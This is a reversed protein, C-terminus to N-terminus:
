TTRILGPKRHACKSVLQNCKSCVLGLATYIPVGNEFVLVRLVQICNSYVSGSQVMEKRRVVVYIHGIAHVLKCTDISGLILLLLQIDEAVEDPDIIDLILKSLSLKCKSPVKHEFILVVQIETSVPDNPLGLLQIGGLLGLLGIGCLLSRRWEIFLAFFGALLSHCGESSFDFGQSLLVSCQGLIELLQLHRPHSGPVLRSPILSLVLLSVGYEIFGQSVGSFGEILDVHGHALQLL